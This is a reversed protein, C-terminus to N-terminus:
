SAGGFGRGLGGTGSVMDLYSALGLTRSGFVLRWDPARRRLMGKTAM